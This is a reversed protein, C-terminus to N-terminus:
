GKTIYDAPREKIRGFAYLIARVIRESANGDGFPNKAVAMKEYENRDILLQRAMSYVTELDTQYIVSLDKVALIVAEKM